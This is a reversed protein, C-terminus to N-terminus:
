LGGNGIGSLDTKRQTLLNLTSTVQFSNPQETRTDVGGKRSTYCRKKELFHCNKVHSNEM